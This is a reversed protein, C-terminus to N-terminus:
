ARRDSTDRRHTLRYETYKPLSINFHTRKKKVLCVIKNVKKWVKNGPKIQQLSHILYLCFGLLAATDPSKPKFINSIQIKDSGYYVFFFNLFCDHYLIAAGTVEALTVKKLLQKLETQRM